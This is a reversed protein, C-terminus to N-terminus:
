FKRNTFMPFNSLNWNRVKSKKYTDKINVEVQVIKLDELPKEMEESVKNRFRLATEIHKMRRPSIHLPRGNIWACTALSRDNFESEYNVNGFNYDHYYKVHEIDKDNVLIYFPPRMKSNNSM